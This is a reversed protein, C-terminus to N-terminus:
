KLEIDKIKIIAEFSYPIDLESVVKQIEKQPKNMILYKKWKILHENKNYGFLKEYIGM